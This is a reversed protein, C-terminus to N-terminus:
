ESASLKEHAAFVMGYPKTPLCFLIFKDSVMYKIEIHYCLAITQTNLYRYAPIPTM